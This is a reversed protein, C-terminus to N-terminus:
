RVSMIQNILPNGKIASRVSREISDSTVALLSTLVFRFKHSILMSVLCCCFITAGHTEFRNGGSFKNSPISNFKADTAVAL